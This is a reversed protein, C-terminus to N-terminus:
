SGCSFQYPMSVNLSFTFHSRHRFSKGNRLATQLKFARRPMVTDHTGKANGVVGLTSVSCNKREICKSTAQIAIM